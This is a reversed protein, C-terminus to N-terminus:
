YDDLCCPRNTPSGDSDASCRGGVDYAECRFIELRISDLQNVDLQALHELVVQLTSPPPRYHGSENSLSVIRGEHVTIMGAAAVPEGAVLYSHRWPGGNASTEAAFQVLLQSDVTLVYLGELERDSALPSGADDVALGDSLSLELRKREEPSCYSDRDGGTHAGEHFFQPLLPYGPLLPKSPPSADVPGGGCLESFSSSVVSTGKRESLHVQAGHMDLVLGLSSLSEFSEPGPLQLPADDTLNRLPVKLTHMGVLTSIQVRRDQTLLSPVAAWAASLAVAEVFSNAAGPYVPDICSVRVVSCCGLYIAALAIMAVRGSEWTSSRSTLGVYVLWIHVAAELIFRAWHACVGVFPYGPEAALVTVGRWYDLTIAPVIIIAYMMTIRRRIVASDVDHPLLIAMMVVFCLYSMFAVLGDFGNGLRLTPVFSCIMPVTPILCIWVLRKRQALAAVRAPHQQAISTSGGISSTCMPM